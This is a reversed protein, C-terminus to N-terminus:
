TCGIGECLNFQDAVAIQNNKTPSYSQLVRRAIYETPPKADHHVSAQEMPLFVVELTSTSRSAPNTM